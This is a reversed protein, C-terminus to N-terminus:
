WGHPEGAGRSMQRASATSSFRLEHLSRGDGPGPRRELLERASLYAIILVVHPGRLHHGFLMSIQGSAQKQMSPSRASLESRVLYRSIGDGELEWGPVTAM